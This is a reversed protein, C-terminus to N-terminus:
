RSALSCRRSINGLGIRTLLQETEGFRSDEQMRNAYAAMEKIAEVYTALWALGHVAHQETEIKDASLKGDESVRERVADRACDRLGEAVFHAQRALDDLEM